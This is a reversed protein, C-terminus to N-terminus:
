LMHYVPNAKKFFALSHDAQSHYDLSHENKSFNNLKYIIIDGTQRETRRNIYAHCRMEM